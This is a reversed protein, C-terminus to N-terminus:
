SEIISLKGTETDIIYGKILIDDPILPHGRLIRVSDKVSQEVDNFGMLWKELDVECIRVMNLVDESIGRELMKKEIKESSVHSVGCDTHGIVMIEEVGLDYISVLVSRVTSDFASMVMGGANKIMKVDGNKIGLASPILEVLRTDMCTIIAVKKDPYKSTKYKEYEKNEVFKKNFELMGDVIHSNMM